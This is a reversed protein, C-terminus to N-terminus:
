GVRHAYNLTNKIRACSSLIQTFTDETYDLYQDEKLVLLKKVMEDSRPVFEILGRPAMSNLLGLIQDLPIYRTIVLHHLFALAIVIYAKCRETIGQRESQMWGENPSPNAVDVCLPLFQLNKEKTRAVAHEIANIDSDLGIVYRAGAKLAAISYNGTNCGLDIVTEPQHSKVVELVLNPKVREEDQLYVNENVYNGWVTGKSGNPSLKRIWQHLQKLLVLYGTKPLPQRAQAKATARGPRKIAQVELWAQFRVLSFKNWSLIEPFTLLGSLETSSIGEL